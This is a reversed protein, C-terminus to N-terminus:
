ETVTISKVTEKYGAAGTRVTHEGPATVFMNLVTQTGTQAAVQTGAADKIETDYVGKYGAIGRTVTVSYSTAVVKSASVELPADPLPAPPAANLHAWTVPGIVGDATLALSHQFNKVAAEMLPGFDGDVTVLENTPGEPANHWVNLRTQASHVANVGDVPDKDNLQLLPTQSPAGFMVATFVDRDTASNSSYQTADAQPYGCGSPSCIHLGIWHASWLYYDARPIGAASLANIVAQSDGASTYFIPKSHGAHGASGLRYFAPTQAPTADGPEVDLCWSGSTVAPTISVLHAGPGNRAAWAVLASWNDFHGSNYGAYVALGAPMGSVAVSDAGLLTTGIGVDAARPTLVGHKIRWSKSGVAPSPLGFPQGSYDLVATESPM